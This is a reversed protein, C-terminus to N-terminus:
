KFNLGFLRHAVEFMGSRVNELQFYPRLMEEDLDYQQKKVKEAYFWWDWPALKFSPKGAAAMDEDILKQMLVVEEGARKIAPTWVKKLLGYVQDPHKAMNDDLIYHAHTEYGLMKAKELRLAAIKELIGKNDLDDGNNGMWAYGKFMRERLARNESYQLFPILSPKHLTFAWSNAPANDMDAAKEAAAIIMGNPLGALDDPDKLVMAFRNTEDLINQGFQLTLLALDQNLGKLKEKDTEALLAGSRVFRKHTETLLRLQVPNLDLDNRQQFVTDIRRFLADNLQIGDRHASLVPAMEKAVAQMDPNTMTGNLPYFVNSVRRLMSGSNELAEITNAFTAPDQSATILDIEQQQRGIATAFAPVYSDVTIASFDPLGYPTSWQQDFANASGSGGDDCAAWFCGLAMLGSLAMMKLVKRM